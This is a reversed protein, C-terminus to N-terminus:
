GSRQMEEWMVKLFNRVATTAEDPPMLNQRAIEAAIDAVSRKGDIMGMLWAHIRVSAAQTTFAPLMPVPEKESGRGGVLWAPLYVWPKWPMTAVKRARFSFIRETRSQRNFPSQLYAIEEEESSDLHYGGRELSKIVEPASVNSAADAGAFGLSGSNMWVGGPKLLHNITSVLQSFPCDIVDILWHTFVADFSAATFPPHLVDALVVTKEHASWPPDLEHTIAVHHPEIPALPFEVVTAPRRNLLRHSLLALLPNSELAVVQRSRGLDFALRDAGSGPLLLPGTADGLLCEIRQWADVNEAEGWVWDRAIHTNYATPTHHSPLRTRLGLLTERAAGRDNGPMPALLAEM